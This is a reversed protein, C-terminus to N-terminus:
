YSVGMVWSLPEVALSGTFFKAKFEELVALSEKSPETFPGLAIGTGGSQTTETITLLFSEKEDMGAWDGNTTYTLVDKYSPHAYILERVVDDPYEVFVGDSLDFYEDIDKALHPVEQWAKLLEEANLSVEMISHSILNGYGLTAIVAM